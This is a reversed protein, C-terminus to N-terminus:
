QATKRLNPSPTRVEGRIRQDWNHGGSLGSLTQIGRAEVFLTNHRMAARLVAPALSAFGGNSPDAAIPAINVM